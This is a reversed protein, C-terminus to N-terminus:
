SAQKYHMIGDCRTFIDEVAPIEINSIVYQLANMFSFSKDYTKNIYEAFSQEDYLVNINPCKIPGFSTQAPCPKQCHGCTTCYHGSQSVDSGNMANVSDVLELGVVNVWSM